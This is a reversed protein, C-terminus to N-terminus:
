LRAATRGTSVAVDCDLPFPCVEVRWLFWAGYGILRRYFKACNIVDVLRVRLRCNTGIPRLPADPSIRSIYPRKKNIKIKIKKRSEGVSTVRPHIKVYLLEFCKQSMLFHRKLSVRHGVVNQPDFKGFVAL